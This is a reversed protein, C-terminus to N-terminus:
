TAAEAGFALLLEGRGYVVLLVGPFCHRYFCKTAYGVHRNAQEALIKMVLTDRLDM